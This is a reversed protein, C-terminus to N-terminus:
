KIAKKAMLFFRHNNQELDLYGQQTIINHIEVLKDYYGNVTFGPLEWPVAKLHIVIAGIDFIRTYTIDEYSELIKFGTNELEKSAYGLNWEIGDELSESGTLAFRLKSDNKDGVQQTIFLGGPKLIRYVDNPSYYEHRDIVLEFEENSFPLKDKNKCYLVKVGLPELAKKAVSVNPEYRESACTYKPLPLLSSLFEGGGTGMDLLFEAKRVFLLIKSFYSWTLPADVFRSNIYSFDWGSFPHEAESVLFNFLEKNEM